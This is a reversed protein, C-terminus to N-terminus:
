DLNTGWNPRTRCVITTTLLHKMAGFVCAYAAVEKALLQTHSRESPANKTTKIVRERQRKQALLTQM